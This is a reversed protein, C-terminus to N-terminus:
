LQHNILWESIGGGRQPTIGLSPNVASTILAECRALGEVCTQNLFHSFSQCDQLFWVSLSQRLSSMAIAREADESRLLGRGGRRLGVKRVLSTAIHAILAQTADSVEGFAGGTQGTQFIYWHSIPTRMGLFFYFFTRSLVQKALKITFTVIKETLYVSILVHTVLDVIIKPKYLGFSTLFLPAFNLCVYNESINWGKFMALIAYKAMKLCLLSLQYKKKFKRFGVRRFYWCAM